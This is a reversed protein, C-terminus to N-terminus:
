LKSKSNLNLPKLTKKLQNQKSTNKLKSKSKNAQSM